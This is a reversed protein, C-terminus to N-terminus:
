GPKEVFKWKKERSDFYILGREKLRQFLKYQPETLLVRIEDDNATPLKEVKDVFNEWFRRDVAVREGGIDLILAGERRLREFFADRDRLWQVDSEFVIGQEKLRDIASRRRGRYTTAPPQEAAAAREELQKVRERVKELEERLAEVAEVLDAIRSALSDIKATWPNLMDQVKREIRSVIREESVEKVHERVLEEVVRRVDQGLALPQGTRLCSILLDRVYDSVLTYGAERSRRKLERYVDEPVKFAVLRAM